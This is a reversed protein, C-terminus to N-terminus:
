IQSSYDAPKRSASSAARGRFTDGRVRHRKKRGLSSGHQSCTRQEKTAHGGSKVPLETVSAAMQALVSVKLALKGENGEIIEHVM